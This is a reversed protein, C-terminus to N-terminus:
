FSTSFDGKVKNLIEKQVAIKHRIVIPSFDMYKHLVIKFGRINRYMLRTAIYSQRDFTNREMWSRQLRHVMDDSGAHSFNEGGGDKAVVSVILEDTEASSLRPHKMSLLRKWENLNEEVERVDKFVAGGIVVELPHAPPDVVWLHHNCIYLRISDNLGGIHENIM